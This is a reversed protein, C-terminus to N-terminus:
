FYTSLKISLIQANPANVGYINKEMQLHAEWPHRIFQKELINLNGISIFGILSYVLYGDKLSVNDLKSAGISQIRIGGGYGIADSVGAVKINAEVSNEASKNVNRGDLSKVTADEVWLYEAEFALMATSQISYGFLRLFLSLEKSGSGLALKDPKDGNYPANDGNLSIGLQFDATDTYILRWIGYIEIDGMGSASADGAFDLFESQGSDNLNIDSSRQTDLYPVSIGLNITNFLGYQFQLRAISTEHDISGTAASSDIGNRERYVDLTSTTESNKSLYQDYTTRSIELSTLSVGEPVFEVTQAMSTQCLIAMALTTWVSFLSLLSFIKNFYTNQM